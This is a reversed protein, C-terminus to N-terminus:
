SRKQKARYFCMAAVRAACHVYNFQQIIFCSRSHLARLSNHLLFPVNLLMLIDHASCLDWTLCEIALLISTLYLSVTQRSWNSNYGTHSQQWSCYGKNM